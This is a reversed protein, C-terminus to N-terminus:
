HMYNKFEKSEGPKLWFGCASKDVEMIAPSILEAELLAQTWPIWNNLETLHKLM